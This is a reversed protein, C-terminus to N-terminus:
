RKHAQGRNGEVTKHNDQTSRHADLIEMDQAIVTEIAVSALLFSPLVIVSPRSKGKCIHGCFDNLIITMACRPLGKRRAYLSQGTGKENQVRTVSM